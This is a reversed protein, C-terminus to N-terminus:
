SILGDRGVQTIKTAEKAKITENQGAKCRSCEASIKSWNLTSVRPVVEGYDHLIEALQKVFCNPDRELDELTISGVRLLEARKDLVQQVRICCNSCLTGLVSMGSEKHAFIPCRVFTEKFKDAVGRHSISELNCKEM